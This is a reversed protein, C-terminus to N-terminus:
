KTILALLEPFEKYKEGFSGISFHKQGAKILLEADLKEALFKAHDLPCYPDNDAHLITFNDAKNKIKAFDFEEEFLSSLSEWGLDNIFASVLYCHKVKKDEPLAQLIGLIAVAGSSHGILVTDEDFDFHLQNFLFDNYKKINPTSSDPLEPLTVQWAKAELEKKLWPFWNDTPNSDTGHLILAKQM